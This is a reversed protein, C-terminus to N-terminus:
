SPQQPHVEALTALESRITELLDQAVEFSLLREWQREYPFGPARSAELFNKLAHEPLLERCRMREGLLEQIEDNSWLVTHAAEAARHVSPVGRLRKLAKRAFYPVIPAFRWFNGLAIPAAPWGHELSANALAPSHRALARRALINRDRLKWDIQLMTELVKRFMMPSLCSWIRDTSSAIRGQWRQMRFRLYFHDMQTTNPFHRVPHSAERFMSVFHDVLDLTRLEPNGDSLVYRRTVIRKFDPEEVNGISPRLLEWWYGRAVEGYSGNVSMEGFGRLAEHIRHIRSYEILNMEGDTLAAAARLEAPSGTPPVPLVRHEFGMLRSLAQSVKVDGDDNGGTVTTTFPAQAALMGSVIIRSDYGGTLDCVPRNSLAAVSKGASRIEEFFQDVAQTGSLSNPSLSSIGWYRREETRGSQLTLVSAPPLKRVERYMTRDEYMVGTSILEQCGLSDFTTQSLAALLLSSHSLALGGDVQRRYSHHSGILDTIVTVIHSRGDGIVVTFFGELTDVVPDIGARLVADLLKSEKGPGLGSHARWTGAAVLWSGTEEDTALGTPGGAKRASVSLSCWAFSKSLPASWPFLRRLLHSGKTAAALSRDPTPVDPVFVFFNGM